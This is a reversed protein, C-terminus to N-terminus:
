SSPIITIIHHKMRFTKNITLFTSIKSHNFVTISCSVSKNNKIINGSGGKHEYTELKTKDIHIARYDDMSIDDHAQDYVVKGVVNGDILINSFQSTDHLHHLSMGNKWSGTGYTDIADVLLQQYLDRKVNDNRLPTRFNLAKITM